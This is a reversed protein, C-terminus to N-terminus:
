EGEGKHNLEGNRHLNAALEYGSKVTYDGWHFGRGDKSNKWWFNAIDSEIEKCVSVPLKFCSMAYNPLTTAVAKIMVEKSAQSLFQESWGLLKTYLRKHIGRMPFIHGTSEGNILINYSGIAICEMIWQRFRSDFGVAHLMVELFPWEVRDYAKAMDLKLAVHHNGKGKRSKMSHLIEHVILVNDMIM